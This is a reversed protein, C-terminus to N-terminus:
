NSTLQQYLSPKDSLSVAADPSNIRSQLHSYLLLVYHQITNKKKKKHKRKEKKVVKESYYDFFM